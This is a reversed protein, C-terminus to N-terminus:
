NEARTGFHSTLTYTFVKSSRADLKLTFKVTGKDVKEFDGSDGAPKIEWKRADFGRRVEVKEKIVRAAEM